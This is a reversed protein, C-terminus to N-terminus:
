VDEAEHPSLTSSWLKTIRRHNVPLPNLRGGRHRSTASSTSTLFGKDGRDRQEREDEFLRLPAEIHRSELTKM